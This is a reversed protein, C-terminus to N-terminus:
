EMINFRITLTGILGGTVDTITANVTKIGVTELYRVSFANKGINRNMFYPSTNETNTVTRGNNHWRFIVRTTISPAELRISLRKTGITSFLFTQNMMIQSIDIDQEANVLVWKLQPGLSPQASSAISPLASISTTLSPGTSIPPMESASPSSSPVLSPTVSPMVSPQHSALPSINHCVQSQLLVKGDIEISSNLRDEPFLASAQYIECLSKLLHITCITRLCDFTM